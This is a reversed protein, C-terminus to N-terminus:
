QHHAAALLSPVRLWQHLPMSTAHISREAVVYPQAREGETANVLTIVLRGEPGKSVVTDMHAVSRVSLWTRPWVQLPAAVGFLPRDTTAEHKIEYGRRAYVIHMMPRSFGGKPRTNSGGRHILRYDFAIM